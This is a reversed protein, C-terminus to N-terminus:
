QATSTTNNIANVAQTSAETNQITNTNEKVDSNKTTTNANSASNSNNTQTTGSIGATGTTSQQGSTNGQIAINKVVFTGKLINGNDPLLKFNQIRFNLDQDNEIAYIFNTIGIYSGQVTFNLDNANNGGTSSSAIEFKLNVGQSTAHNGIKTWLFEISYSEDQMARLIQEDSSLNTYNLYEEKATKMNNSASKLDSIKKPYQVDILSNIEEIKTDISKSSESLQQISWIEFKGIELGKFSITYGLAVLLMIIVIILVKRM